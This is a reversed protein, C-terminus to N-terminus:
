GGLSGTLYKEDEETLTEGRDLKELAQQSKAEWDAVEADTFEAM